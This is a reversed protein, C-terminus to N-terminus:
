TILWWINGQFFVVYSYIPYKDGITEKHCAISVLELNFAFSFKNSPYNEGDVPSFVLFVFESFVFFSTWSQSEIYCSSNSFNEPCCWQTSIADIMKIENKNWETNLARLPFTWYYWQWDSGWDQMDQNLTEDVHVWQCLFWEGCEFIPSRTLILSFPHQFPFM